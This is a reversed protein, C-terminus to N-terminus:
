PRKAIKLGRSRSPDSMFAAMTVTRMAMSPPAIRTEVGNM